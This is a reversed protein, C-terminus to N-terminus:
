IHILSLPYIGYFNYGDPSFYSVEQGGIVYLADATWGDPDVSRNTSGHLGFSTFGFPSLETKTLAHLGDRDFGLPNVRSGTSGFTGDARFNNPAVETGTQVHIGDPTFGYRDIGLVNRGDPGYVTLVGIQSLVQAIRGCSRIMGQDSHWPLPKGTEQAWREIALRVARILPTERTYLVGHYQTATYLADIDQEDGSFGAQHLLHKIFSSASTECAM